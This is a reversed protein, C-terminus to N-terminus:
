GGFMVERKQYEVAKKVIFVFLIFVIFFLSYYFINYSLDYESKLSAKDVTENFVVTPTANYIISVFTNMPKALITWLFM